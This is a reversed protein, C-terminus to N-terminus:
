KSVLTTAIMTLLNKIDTLKKTAENLLKNSHDLACYFDNENVNADLLYALNHKVDNLKEQIDTIDQEM